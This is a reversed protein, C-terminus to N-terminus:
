QQSVETYVQAAFDLMEAQLDAPATDKGSGTFALDITMADSTAPDKQEFTFSGYRRAWDNVTALEEATLRGATNAEGSKCSSALVQGEAFVMLRDCFGAIGGSRSWTFVLGQESSNLLDSEPRVQTGDQNTRFVYSVGNWELTVRYGPVIAMTCMEDPQALGLCGNPWEQAEFEVVRVDNLAAGLREVLMQRASAVAPLLDGSQPITNMDVIRVIRGDENTRVEVPQGNVIFTILYGPTIVEACAEDQNALGLCANPWTADEIKEIRLADAPLGFRAMMAELAAQSAAPAAQQEGTPTAAPQTSTIGSCAALMVAVFIFLTILRYKM